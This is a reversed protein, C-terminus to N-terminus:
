SFPPHFPSDPHPFPPPPPYLSPSFCLPASSPLPHHGVLNNSDYGLDALGQILAAWVGYGQVFYDLGSLGTVPRLKIGPPDLGTDLDLSLHQLWCNVDRLLWQAMNLSGWLRQRLGGAAM